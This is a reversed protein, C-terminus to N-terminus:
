QKILRSSFITNASKLEIIYLGYKLQTLDVQIANNKISEVLQGTTNYISIEFASERIEYPLDLQ